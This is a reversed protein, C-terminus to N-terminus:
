RRRLLRIIDMLSDRCEREDQYLGLNASRVANDNLESDTIKESLKQQLRAKSDNNLEHFKVQLTYM